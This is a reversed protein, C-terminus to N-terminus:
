SRTTTAARRWLCGWYDGIPRCYIRRVQDRYLRHLPSHRQSGACASLGGPGKRDTPTPVITTHSVIHALCQHHAIQGGPTVRDQATVHVEARRFPGVEEDVSVTMLHDHLDLSEVRRPDRM